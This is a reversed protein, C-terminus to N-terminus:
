LLTMNAPLQFTTLIDLETLRTQTYSSGTLVPTDLYAPHCMIEVTKGDEIRKDLNTFYEPTVTDGYFDLLSFDAM